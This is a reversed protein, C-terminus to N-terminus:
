NQKTDSDSYVGKLKVGILILIAIFMGFMSGWFFPILVAPPLEGDIVMWLEKPLLLVGVFFIILMAFCLRSIENSMSRENRDAPQLGLM